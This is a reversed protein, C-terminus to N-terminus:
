KEVEISSVLIKNIYFEKGDSTKVIYFKRSMDDRLSGEIYCNKYGYHKTVDCHEPKLLVKANKLPVFVSYLSPAFLLILTILGLIYFRNKKIFILKNNM